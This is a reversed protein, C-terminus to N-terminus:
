CVKCYDKIKKSQPTNEPQKLSWVSILMLAGVKAVRNIERLTQVRREITSLHHFSAISLYYHYYNDKFPMQSM